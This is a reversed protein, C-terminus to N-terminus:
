GAARKQDNEWRHLIVRPEAAGMDARSWMRGTAGNIKFKGKIAKFAHKKLIAVVHSERITEAVKPPCDFETHAHSIVERVTVLDRGNFAGGEEFQEALWRAAIPASGDIMEQKAETMPAPEKPNFASVDRALLWAFCAADGGADFWDWLARFYPQPPKDSILCQHVWYRRDGQTPALADAHNTFMVVNIINPIVYQAVNKRNVELTHPPAAILPKLRDMIERRSFTHAENIIVFQREIWGSNFPALLAEPGITAANHGGLARRLPELATDKGIGEEGLMVPTHNIKVGPNQLIFAMYSLIHEHAPEGPEGFLMSIHTLWPGVDGPVPKLISPRYMNVATRMSGNLEEEVIAPRGPRYTATIVKRVQGGLNQFVGEASNIGTRGFAAVATNTANFAKSNLLDGTELDVYRDVQICYVWREAMKATAVEGPDPPMNEEDDAPPESFDAQAAIEGQGSVSALWDWGVAADDVSDWIKAIFAEEAGPYQLAWDLVAPWHDERTPGFCAKLACVFPVFADRDPFREPTCPVAALLALVDDPSPAHLSPDDLSKRSGTALAASATTDKGVTCGAGELATRLAIFFREVASADIAPLSDPGGVVCCPHDGLWEYEGGAPHPGEVVYQQGTALLEAAHKGGDRDMFELRVKRLLAAGPELRFMHLRRPSGARTRVPGFGLYESALNSVLAALEENDTDNDLGPYQRGQIGVSAKWGHWKRVDAESAQLTESWRGGFGSWTGQATLVGPVKGRHGPQVNTGATLPAGPPLIPLLETTFKADHWRQFRTQVKM